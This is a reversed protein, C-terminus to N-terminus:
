KLPPNKILYQVLVRKSDEVMEISRVEIIIKLVNSLDLMDLVHRWDLTGDELGNNEDHAGFNNSAHIYVVRKRVQRVFTDIECGLKGSVYGYNLHGLDLVYKLEPFTELFDYVYGAVLVSNSEYLMDVGRDAAYSFVQKLRKKCEPSLIGDDLHFVLQRAGLIRCLDVEATLTALNAKTFSEYPQFIGATGSHVSLDFGEVYRKIKELFYLNLHLASGRRNIEVAEVGLAHIYKYWKVHPIVQTTVGIVPSMSM